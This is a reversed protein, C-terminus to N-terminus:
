NQGSCNEAHLHADTEGLGHNIFYHHVYSITVNAGKGVDVAEDILYNVQQPIAECM